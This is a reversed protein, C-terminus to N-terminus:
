YWVRLLCLGQPPATAAALRRDAAALVAAFAASSRKGQGVDVLTAVVTRVMQPLFAAGALDVAILGGEGPGPPGEYLGALPWRYCAASYIERVTSPRDEAADPGPVGLGAGAFSAFDHRGRLAQAAAHMAGLDLAARVHWARHRLLPAPAAAQWILYRYARGRASFRAHFGAAAQEAARVALDPPLTANLARQLAAPEWDRALAFSAVQGLAHVGADTRGALAIRVPAGTLRALATEVEGQVTRGREPAQAQSGHFGSGDYELTLKYLV